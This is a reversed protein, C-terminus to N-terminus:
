LCRHEFIASNSLPQDNGITKMHYKLRPSQLMGKFVVCQQDFTDISLVCDVVKTIIRYKVCNAVQAYKSDNWFCIYEKGVPPLKITKHLNFSRMPM